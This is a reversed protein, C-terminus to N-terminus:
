MAGDISLALRESCTQMLSMPLAMMPQLRLSFFLTSSMKISDSSGEIFRSMILVTHTSAHFASFKLSAGSTPRVGRPSRRRELQAGGRELVRAALEPQRGGGELRGISLKGQHAYVQQFLDRGRRVAGVNAAAFLAAFSSAM